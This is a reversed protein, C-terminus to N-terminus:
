VLQQAELGIVAVDRFNRGDKAIFLAPREESVLAELAANSSNALLAPLDDASAERSELGEARGEGALRKSYYERLEPNRALVREIFAILEQRRTKGTMAKEVRYSPLEGIYIKSHM